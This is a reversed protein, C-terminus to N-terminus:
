ALGVQIQVNVWSEAIVTPIYNGNNQTIKYLRMNGFNASALQHGNITGVDEVELFYGTIGNKKVSVDWSVGAIMGSNISKDGKSVNKPVDYILKMRTGFRNVVVKTGDKNKIQKFIGTIINESPDSSPLLNKDTLNYKRNQTVTGKCKPGSLKLNGTYGQLFKTTRMTQNNFFTETKNSVTLNKTLIDINAGAGYLRVGSRKWDSNQELFSKHTNIGKHESVETNNIGRGDGTVLIDIKEEDLSNQTEETQIDLILALPELSSGQKLSSKTYNYEESSFIIKTKYSNYKPNSVL